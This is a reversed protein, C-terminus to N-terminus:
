AEERVTGIRVPGDGAPQHNRSIRHREVIAQVFLFARGHTRTEEDFDTRCDSGSIRYVTWGMRELESDRAFDKGKDTHYAAGDCEIAVKVKPNGFDVFYRGVPYQPYLVADHARIDHWLWREIPTLHIGAEEWLYPDIGWENVAEAMIQPTAWRYFKLITEWRNV